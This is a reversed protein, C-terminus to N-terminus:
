FYHLLMLRLFYALVFTINHALCVYVVIPVCNKTSSESSFIPRRHVHKDAGVSLVSSFNVGMHM